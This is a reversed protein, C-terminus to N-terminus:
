DSGGSVSKRSQLGILWEVHREDVGVLDVVDVVEDLCLSHDPLSANDNTIEVKKMM